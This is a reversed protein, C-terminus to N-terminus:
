DPFIMFFKRQDWYVEEIMDEPQNRTAITVWSAADDWSLFILVANFSNHTKVIYLKDM